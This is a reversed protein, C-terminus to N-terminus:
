VDVDFGSLLTKKYTNIIFEATEFVDRKKDQIEKENEEKLKSFSVLM